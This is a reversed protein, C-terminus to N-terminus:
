FFKSTDKVTRGSRTTVARLFTMEDENDDLNVVQEESESETDYESEQDVDETDTSGEASLESRVEAPEKEVASAEPRTQPFTVKENEPVSTAYMNLSLTGAKFMTTEQRVTRQRSVAKGYNAAWERILVQDGSNLKRMPKLHSMRSLANLPTIQPIVPYYSKEHTYYFAARRVVRKISEYVTNALNRAYQLSTPFHDKFHGM